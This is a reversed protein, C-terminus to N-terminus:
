ATKIARVSKNTKSEALRKLEYLKMLAEVPSLGDLDIELLAQSLESDRAANLSSTRDPRASENVSGQIETAAEYEVLLQEARRTVPRPLGALKAAYVGYSKLASGPSIRYLFVLESGREAIEVYFNKLRPLMDALKKVHAPKLLKDYKGAFLFIRVDNQVATKYLGPIDFRLKRFGTWSNYITQRKQPTDLLQQTFRLLSKNVLGAKQL